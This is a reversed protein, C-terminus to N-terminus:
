TGGTLWALNASLDDAINLGIALSLLFFMVLIFLLLGNMPQPHKKIVHM